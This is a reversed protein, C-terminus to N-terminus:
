HRDASPDEEHSTATPVVDRRKLRVFGGIVLAAAFLSGIGILTPRVWTVDSSYHPQTADLPAGDGVDEAQAASALALSLVIAILTGRAM